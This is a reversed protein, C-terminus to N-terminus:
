ETGSKWGSLYARQEPALDQVKMGLSRLKLVAVQRDIAEPVPHVGLSLGAGKKALWELVLAQNAFSMDM